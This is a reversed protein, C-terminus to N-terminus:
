GTLWAAIEERTGLGLAVAADTVTGGSALAAKAVKAAKEYGVHPVLMTALVLSNELATGCVEVNAEIGKV